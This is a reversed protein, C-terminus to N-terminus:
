ASIFWARARPQVTRNQGTLPQSLTTLKLFVPAHFGAISRRRHSRCIAHLARSTLRGTALTYPLFTINQFVKGRGIALRNARPHRSSRPHAHPVYKKKDYTNRPRWIPAVFDPRKLHEVAQRRHSRNMDAAKSLIRAIRSQPHPIAASAEDCACAQAVFGCHCAPISRHSRRRAPTPSWSEHDASTAPNPRSGRQGVPRISAM